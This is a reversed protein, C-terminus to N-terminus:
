KRAYVIEVIVEIFVAATMVFLGALVATLNIFTFRLIAYAAAGLILYRFALFLGGRARGGGLAEVLRRLWRFNLASFLAGLLFGLGWSWGRTAWLSLTGLAALVAMFREIRWSAREFTLEDPLTM